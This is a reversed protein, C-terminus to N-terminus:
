TNEQEGIYLWESNKEKHVQKHCASCLTVGNEINLREEPFQAFPKIHHVELDKTSGCIVCKHHDRELVSERWKRYQYTLRKRAVEGRNTVEYWNSIVYGFQEDGEFNPKVYGLKLLLDADDDSAGVYRAVSYLGHIIGKAQAIVCLHFYLAQTSLPLSLFDDCEVITESITMNDAM